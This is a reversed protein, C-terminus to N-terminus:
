PSLFSLILLCPSPSFLPRPHLCRSFVLVYSSHFSFSGSLFGSSVLVFVVLSLWHLLHPVVPVALITELLLSPNHSLNQLPTRSLLSPFPRSSDVCSARPPRPPKALLVPSSVLSCHASSLVARLSM